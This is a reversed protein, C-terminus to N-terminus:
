PNKSSFYPGNFADPSSPSDDRNTRRQFRYGQKRFAIATIFTAALATLVGVFIFAWLMFDDFGDSKRVEGMSVSLVIGIIALGM